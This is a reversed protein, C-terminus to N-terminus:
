KQGLGLQWHVKDRTRTERGEVRTNREQTFPHTSRSDWSHSKLRSLQFDRRHRHDRCCFLSKLLFALGYSRIHTRACGRGTGAEKGDIAESWKLTDCGLIEM